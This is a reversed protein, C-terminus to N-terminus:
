SIGAVGMTQWKTRDDGLKPPLTESRMHHQDNELVRHIRCALHLYDKDSLEPHEQGYCIIMAFGLFAAHVDDDNIVDGLRASVEANTEEWTKYRKDTLGKLTLQCPELVATTAM